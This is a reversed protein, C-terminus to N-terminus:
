ASGQRGRRRDREALVGLSALRQALVALPEQECNYVIAHGGLRAFAGANAEIDDVHVIAGPEVGARRIAEQYIREDPKRAGVLYSRILRAPDGFFRRMVPLREIYPWHGENTNSVVFLRVDPRVGELLQEIGENDTFIDGWTRAFEGAGLDTAGIEEAVARRFQDSSVRGEDYPRDLGKGFVRAYVEESGLGCRAALRRCTKMHDFRALVRGLDFLVARIVPGADGDQRPYAPLAGAPALREGGPVRQSAVGLAM